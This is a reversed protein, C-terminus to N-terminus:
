EGANHGKADVVETSDKRGLGLSITEFTYRKCTFKMYLNLSLPPHQPFAVQCWFTEITESDFEIAGEILFFKVQM